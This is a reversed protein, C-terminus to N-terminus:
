RPGKLRAARALEEAAEAERGSARLLLGLNRHVDPNGPNLRETEKLEGIAEPIRGATMLVSAFNYHIEWRGPALRVAAEFEPLAEPIRRSNVLVVALNYHADPFAPNLRITERYHAVGGDVDGGGALENGLRFHALFYNSDARVADEYARAAEANRGAVELALGLLYRARPNGPRNRVTDTWLGVDTAYIGNRSHTAWGLGAALAALVLFLARGRGPLKMLVWAAAAIFAALPLYMRHEAITESAVPVVSSSPALIAFFCAGLFGFASRRWLAVGTFAALLVLLVAQPWVDAFGGAVEWGYDLILPRPWVALFLYHAVARCQTLAYVWPSLSTGLGATGARTAGSGLVLWALPLWTAELALHARWRRRWAEAFTGALFTRDYLLVVLPASVMVEKTGMGLLCAFAACGFWAGGGGERTTGEAGRMFCYLTLLYFLGMLSEARQSIYTVSETQLPHVTWLLGVAFAVFLPDPRGSTASSGSGRAEPKLRGATRRVIGFLALAALLHIILNTAHYSRVDLGSIAYDVAFSLNAIPRGEVPSGDAPPHLAGGIPWLHRITPNLAIAEIDDFVLPGSFSNSYAIAGALLILAAALLPTFVRRPPPPAAPGEKTPPV